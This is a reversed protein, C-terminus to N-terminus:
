AWAVRRVETVRCWAVTDRSQIPAGDPTAEPAASGGAAFPRAVRQGGIQM